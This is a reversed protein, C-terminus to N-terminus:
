MAQRQPTDQGPWLEKVEKKLALAIVKQARSSEFRGNLLGSLYGRTYGTREALTTINIEQDILTKKVTKAIM